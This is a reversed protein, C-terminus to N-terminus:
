AEPLDAVARMLDSRHIIRAVLYGDGDDIGLAALEGTNMPRLLVRYDGSRLRLWPKSGVLPTLNPESLRTLAAVIHRRVIPDLKRLDREAKAALELHM